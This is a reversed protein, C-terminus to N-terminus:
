LTIQEVYSLDIFDKMKIKTKILDQNFIFDAADQMIEYDEDVFGLRIDKKSAAKLNPEIDSAIELVKPSVSLKAEEVFWQNATSVNLRYFDYADYFSKLFNVPAEPNAEIYDNSM